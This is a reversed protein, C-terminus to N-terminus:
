TSPLHRHLSALRNELVVSVASAAVMCGQNSEVFRNFLFTDWSHERNYLVDCSFIHSCGGVHRSFLFIAGDDRESLSSPYLSSKGSMLCSCDNSSSINWLSLSKYIAAGLTWTRITWSLSSHRVIIISCAHMRSPRRRARRGEAHLHM